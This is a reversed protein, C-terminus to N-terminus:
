SIIKYANFGPGDPNSKNFEGAYWTSFSHQLLSTVGLVLFLGHTQHSDPVRCNGQNVQGMPLWNRAFGLARELAPLVGLFSGQLLRGHVSCKVAEKRYGSALLCLGLVSYTLLMKRLLPSSLPSPVPTIYRSLLKMSTYTSYLFRYTKASTIRELFCGWLWSLPFVSHALQQGLSHYINHHPTSRLNSTRLTINGDLSWPLVWSITLETILCPILHCCFHENGLSFALSLSFM